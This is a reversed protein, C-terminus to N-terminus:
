FKQPFKRNFYNNIFEDKHLHLGFFNLSLIKLIAKIELQNEVFWHHTFDFHSYDCKNFIELPFRFFQDNTQSSTFELLHTLYAHDM